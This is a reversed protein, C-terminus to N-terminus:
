DIESLTIVKSDELLFASRVAQLRAELKGAERDFRAAVEPCGERRAQDAGKGLASAKQQWASVLACLTERAAVSHTGILRDVGFSHNRLCHFTLPSVGSFLSVQTHCQPCILGALTESERAAEEAYM